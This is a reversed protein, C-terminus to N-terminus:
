SFFRWSWWFMMARNFVFLNGVGLRGVEKSAMVKNWNVWHIRREDLDAGWFFRARSSELSRLVIVLTLFVLMLYSGVSGLVYKILTLRGGFYLSKVKWVALRSRFRYIISSWANVRNMNQGVLVGLHVFMFSDLACGMYRVIDM